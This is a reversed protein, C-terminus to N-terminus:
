TDDRVLDLPSTAPRRAPASRPERERLSEEIGPTQTRAASRATRDTRDGRVDGAERLDDFTAGDLCAGERLEM